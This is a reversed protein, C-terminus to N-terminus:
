KLSCCGGSLLFFFFVVYQRAEHVVSFCVVELAGVLSMDGRSRSKDTIFPTRKRPGRAHVLDRERRRLM